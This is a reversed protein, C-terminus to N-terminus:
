NSCVEYVEIKFQLYFKTNIVRCYGMFLFVVCIHIFLSLLPPPSPTTTCNSM